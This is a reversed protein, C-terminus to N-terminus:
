YDMETRIADFVDYGSPVFLSQRIEDASVISKLDTRM